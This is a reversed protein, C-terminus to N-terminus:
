TLPPEALGNATVWQDFKALFTRFAPADREMWDLHKAYELVLLEKPGPYLAHLAEAEAVPHLANDRGHVILLPREALSSLDGEIEFDVLSCAFALSVDPPQIFGGGPGELRTNESDERGGHYLEEITSPDLPYISFPEHRSVTGDRAHSRFQQQLFAEFRAWGEAGRLAQQVRRNNIFGNLAILGAIDPQLRAAKIALGAGMGWGAVVVKRGEAEAEEACIAAAYVIDRQQEELLVQAPDGASEGWGRFDFGFCPYGMATLSGAVMRPLQQVLGTYGSLVIVIPLGAKNAGEDPLFWRGALKLGDSFFWTKLERM